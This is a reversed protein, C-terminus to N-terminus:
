YLKNQRWFGKLAHVLEEEPNFAGASQQGSREEQRTPPQRICRRTEPSKSAYPYQGIDQAYFEGNFQEQLGNISQPFKELSPPFLSCAQNSNGWSRRCGQQILGTTENDGVPSGDTLKLGGNGATEYLSGKDSDIIMDLAHFVLDEYDDMVPDNEMGNLVPRDYAWDMETGYNECEDGDYFGTQEHSIPEALKSPFTSEQDFTM